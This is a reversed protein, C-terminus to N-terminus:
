HVWIDMLRNIQDSSKFKQCIKQYGNEVFREYLQNNNLLLKIKEAMTDVDNPSVLFGSRGDEVLESVGAVGPAIVPVRMAMAEMLAVGMSECRSPLVKIKSKSLIEFVEEQPLGGELKISEKMHLNNILEELYPKDPGEGIILCKVNINQQKLKHCAKILVDVGKIFDLRAVCVILNDIPTKREPYIRSLNIGCYVVDIYQEPVNHKEILFRKNFQSVTIHKKALRSKFRYNRPPFNLVDTGHTTFTYQVGSLLHLLLAFDSAGWGFHAHVIDPKERLVLKVYALHSIFCRKIGAAPNFVLKLLEYYKEPQNILWYIHAGIKQLKNLKPFYRVDKVRKCELHQHGAKEENFAYVIVDVGREQLGVIENLIFTESRRLFAELIYVVKLNSTKNSQASIKFM